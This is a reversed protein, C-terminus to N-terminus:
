FPLSLQDSPPVKPFRKGTLVESVRGQNVGLVAAIQHQYLGMAQKLYKIKAAIEANIPPSSQRQM